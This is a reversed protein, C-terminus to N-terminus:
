TKPPRCIFRFPRYGKRAWCIRLCTGVKSLFSRVSRDESHAALFGKRDFIERFGHNLDPTVLHDRYGQTHPQHKPKNNHSTPSYM